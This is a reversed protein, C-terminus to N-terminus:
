SPQTLTNVGEEKSEQQYEEYWDPHQTREELVLQLMAGFECKDEALHATAQELKFDDELVFYLEKKLELNEKALKAAEGRLSGYAKSSWRLGAVFVALVIVVKTLWFDPASYLMAFALAYISYLPFPKTITELMVLGPPLMGIHKGFVSELWVRIMASYARMSTMNRLM